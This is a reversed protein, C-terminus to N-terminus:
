GLSASSGVEAARKGEDAGKRAARVIVFIQLGHESKLFLYRRLLQRLPEKELPIDVSRALM